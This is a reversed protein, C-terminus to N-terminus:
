ITPLERVNIVLLTQDDTPDSYGVHDTMRQWVATAAADASEWQHHGLAELVGDTRFLQRHPSMAESIGDTFFVLFDGPELPIVSQDYVAEALVGCLMGHSKLQIREGRRLLWPPPHGANSYTLTRERQDIVGTVVSMFQEASTLSCLTRNIRRILDNPQWQSASGDHLLARLAGRAVAMVLAAPISHGVADGLAIFTRSSDLPCIECLDGSLESASAARIAVDIGTERPVEPTHCINQHRSATRLENRLRRRVASERLLVTRELARAMQAAVSRLATVARPNVSGHRREYCWLTGLPGEASGVPVAIAMRCGTPLWAASRPDTHDLLIAGHLLAQADPTPSSLARQPHIIDAPDIRWTSRLRLSEIVPDILFFAAGWFGTLDVAAALLRELHAAVGAHTQDPHGLEMLMTVERTRVELAQLASRLRALLVSVADTSHFAAPLSVRPFAAATTKSWSEPLNGSAETSSTEGHAGLAASLRECVHHLEETLPDSLVPLNIDDWFVCHSSHVCETKQRCGGPLFM